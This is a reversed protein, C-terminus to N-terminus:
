GAAPVVWQAAHALLDAQRRHHLLQRRRHTSRASRAGLSLSARTLVGADSTQENSYWGAQVVSALGRDVRKRLLPVDGAELRHEGLIRVGVERRAVLLVDGREVPCRDIGMHCRRAPQEVVASVHVSDSALELRSRQLPSGPSSM